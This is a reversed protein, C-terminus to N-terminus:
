EGEDDDDSSDPTCDKWQGDEKVFKENDTVPQDPVKEFKATVDATAQDGTVHINAVSASMTGLEARLKRLKKVENAQDDSARAKCDTEPDYSFNSNNYNAAQRQVLAKIQDEPSAPASRGFHKYGLFGGVALVVLAAIVGIVAVPRNSRRPPPGVPQQGPALWPGQQNPPAPYAVNSAQSPPPPPRNPVSSQPSPPKRQRHPTWAQGDWYRQGNADQPDDYWGPPMSMTMPSVEQNAVEFKEFPFLLFSREVAAGSFYGREALL